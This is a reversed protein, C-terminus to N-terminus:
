RARREESSATKRSADLRTLLSETVRLLTRAQEEPILELLTVRLVRVWRDVDPDRDRGFMRETAILASYLYRAQAHTTIAIQRAPARSPPLPYVREAM